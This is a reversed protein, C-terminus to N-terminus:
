EHNAGMSKKQILTLLDNWDGKQAPDPFQPISYFGNVAQAAKKAEQVGINTSGDERYDNDGAIIIKTEPFYKRVSLSVATLNGATLACFTPAQGSLTHVTWGTSIGECILIKDFPNKFTGFMFYSGKLESGKVFFKGFNDGRIYQLSVLRKKNYIPVLLNSKLMKLYQSAGACHKRLLYPHDPEAPQAKNWTAHAIRRATAYKKQTEAKRKKKTEAYKQALKQREVDTLPKNDKKFYFTDSLGTRWNGFAGSPIGDTHFNYWFSRSNGKDTSDKIRQIGADTRITDVVAGHSIIVLKFAEIADWISTSSDNHQRSESSKSISAKINGTDFDKKNKPM